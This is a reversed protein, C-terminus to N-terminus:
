GHDKLANKTFDSWSFLFRNKIGLMKRYSAFKSHNM